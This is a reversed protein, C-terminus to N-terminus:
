RSERAYHQGTGAGPRVLWVYRQPSPLWYTRSPPIAATARGVPIAALVIPRPKFSNAAASGSSGQRIRRGPPPPLFRTACSVVSIVIQQCHDLRVRAAIRHRRQAPCAFAQRLQRPGQDGFALNLAPGFQASSPCRSHTEGPPDSQAADQAGAISGGVRPESPPVTM